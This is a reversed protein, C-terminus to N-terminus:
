VPSCELLGMPLSLLFAAGGGQAEGATLEGGLRTALQRAITLGLGTGRNMSDSRSPDGIQEFAGFVRERHEVAIGPGTDEVTFEVRGRAEDPSHEEEMGVAFVRIEGRPTFKVANSVLALLLQRLRDPDTGVCLSDPAVEVTLALGKAEAQLRLPELVGPLFRALNVPHSTVPLRGIETTTLLLVDDVLRALHEACVGAREAARRGGEPVPGYAASGLLHTYGVIANLPTRLEHSVAAFFRSKARNAEEAEAALRALDVERQMQRSVDQFLVSVGGGPAPHIWLDFVRDRFAHAASRIGSLHRSRGDALTARLADSLEPPDPPLLPWLSSGLADGRSLRLLSEGIRNIYVVRAEADIALFGDRISELLHAHRDALRHEGTADRFSVAIGGTELPTAQYHLVGNEGGPSRPAFFSRPIGERAVERFVHLPATDLGPIEDWLVRGLVSDRPLSLLREAAPNWYTVRWQPDLM